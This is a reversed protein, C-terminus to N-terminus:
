RLSSPPSLVRPAASSRKSWATVRFGRSAPSPEPAERRAHSQRVGASSTLREPTRSETLWFKVREPTPEGRLARYHGEVLGDVM